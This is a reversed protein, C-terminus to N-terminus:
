QAAQAQQAPSEGPVRSHHLLAEGAANPIFALVKGSAVLMTGTSQAVVNVTQGVSLGAKELAARSMRLSAKGTTTSADLLVDVADKGAGVIATVVLLSGMGVLALGVSHRDQGTSAAVSAVPAAVISVAGVSLAESTAELSQALCLGPSLAIMLALLVSKLSMLPIIGLYPATMRQFNVPDILRFRSIVGQIM